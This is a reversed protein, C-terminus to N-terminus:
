LAVGLARGSQCGSVATNQKWFLHHQRRLQPAADLVSGEGDGEEVEGSPVPPMPPSPTRLPSVEEQKQSHLQASGAHM